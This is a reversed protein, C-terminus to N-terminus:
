AAITPIAYTANSLYLVAGNQRNWVGVGMERELSRARLPYEEDEAAIVLDGTGAFRERMVLPTPAGKVFAYIYNVPIWPKVWVEAGGYVGIARDYLNSVDLAARGVSVTTATIVRQDIYAVFGPTFARVAAEQAQNIYVRAEGVGFHELVTNILSTLDSAAFGATGLYHNHTTGDFAVGTVPNPPIPGGDANLFAKLPLTLANQVLRDLISSNTSTFIAKKVERIVARRDGDQTAIFQAALEAGTATQMYKRTWQVTVGFLKMPFGVNLGQAVKQADPTGYEDIEDLIMSDAGGFRRLRDTTIEVLGELMERMIANHADLSTQVAQWTADEGIQAITNLNSVLDSIQLTGYAPM